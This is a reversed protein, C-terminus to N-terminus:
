FNLISKNQNDNVFVLNARIKNSQLINKINSVEAYISANGKEDGNRRLTIETSNFLNPNSANNISWSYELNEGKIDSNSFFYPVLSIKLEKSIFEYGDVIARNYLPGYLPSDEYLVVKPSQPQLEIYTEGKIKNDLTSVEVKIIVPRELAGTTYSLSQKGYGSSNGLTKYDQKWTYVLNKPDIMKGSSDKFTPIATIKVTGQRVLPAKGKYFPPIFGDAEWVLSVEAPTFELEKEYSAGELTNIQVKISTKVGANGMKVSHSTLGVGKEIMKDNVYWTIGARNLDTSYSIVKIRITELPQPIPNSVDIDVVENINPLFQANASTFYVLTFILFSFIFIKKVLNVM